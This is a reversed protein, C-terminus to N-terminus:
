GYPHKEARPNGATCSGQGTKRNSLLIEMLREQEERTVMYSEVDPKLNEPVNWEDKGKGKRLYERFTYIGVTGGDKFDEDDPDHVVELIKPRGFM